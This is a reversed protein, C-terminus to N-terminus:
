VTKVGCGTVRRGTPQHWQVPAGAESGARLQSVDQDRRIPTRREPRTQSALPEPSTLM